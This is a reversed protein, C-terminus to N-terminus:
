LIIYKVTKNFEKPSFLGPKQTATFAPLPFIGSQEIARRTSSLDLKTVRWLNTPNEGYTYCIWSLNNFLLCVSSITFLVANEIQRHQSYM